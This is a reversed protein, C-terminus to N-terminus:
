AAAPQWWFWLSGSDSPGISYDGKGSTIGVLADRLLPLWDAGVSLEALSASQTFSWESPTSSLSLRLKAPTVPIASRNNPVALVAPTPATITLTQSAPMGDAAFADLLAVLSACGDPTATLHWGPYNRQNETYRWLM